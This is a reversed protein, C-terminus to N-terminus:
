LNVKCSPPPAVVYCSRNTGHRGDCRHRVWWPAGAGMTLPGHSIKTADNSSVRINQWSRLYNSMLICTLDLYIYVYM